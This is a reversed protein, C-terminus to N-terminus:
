NTRRSEDYVPLADTAVSSQSRVVSMPWAVGPAGSIRLLEAANGSLIARESEANLSMAGVTALPERDALDFPSDTGLLVRKVSVMEILAKLASPDFLASDYYFRTFYSAPPHLCTQAVSKRKWGLDLRGGVSPLCGGGHALCVKLGPHRDLVGGFILRAAALATEAPYGLLQLLHYDALRSPDSARSPHLLVFYGSRALARWLPENVADDLEAGGGYTGVTAGIFADNSMCRELEALAGDLGVPITALARMRGSSRMVFEALEDNSRRTVEAILADDRSEAGFLFPPASVVQFGVGVESMEEIRRSLEYQEVPFPIPAMPALGSLESSLVLVGEDVRSLDALGRSELWELLPLPMAHAHM